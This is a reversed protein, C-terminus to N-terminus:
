RTAEDSSAPTAPKTLAERERRFADALAEARARAEEPPLNRLVTRGSRRVEADDAMWPNYFEAGSDPIVGLPQRTADHFAIKLREIEAEKERLTAEATDRAAAMVKIGQLVGEAEEGHLAEHLQALAEDREAEAATARALLPALPGTILADAVFEFVGVGLAMGPGIAVLSTGIANTLEARLAAEPAPPSATVPAPGLAQDVLAELKERSWEPHAMGMQGIVFSRRQAHKEEPSMVYDRARALAELLKPDTRYAADTEGAEAGRSTPSASM